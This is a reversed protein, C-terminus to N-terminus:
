QHTCFIHVALLMSITIIIIVERSGAVMIDMIARTDDRDIDLTANTAAMISAASSGTIDSTRQAEGAMIYPVYIEFLVNPNTILRIGRTALLKVRELNKIQSVFQKPRNLIQVDGCLCNKAKNRKKWIYIHMKAVGSLDVPVKIFYPQKKMIFRDQNMAM